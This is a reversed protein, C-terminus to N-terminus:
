IFGALSMFLGSLIPIILNDDVPRGQIRLPIADGLTAGAAGAMYVNFSLPNMDPAPPLNLLVIGILICAAFMVAMIPLPKFNTDRAICNRINGGKIVAGALGSATDGIALMLLAAIAVTKDFILISVLAAMQFYIYAAVQKNEHPRLLSSPFRIKGKLRLWEVLLLIANVLFLVALATERSVFYYAIPMLSGSIHIAKRRLEVFLLEFM